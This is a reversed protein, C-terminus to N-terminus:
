LLYFLRSSYPPLSLPSPDLGRTEYRPRRQKGAQWKNYALTRGACDGATQALRISLGM